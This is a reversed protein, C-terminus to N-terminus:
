VFVFTANIEVVPIAQQSCSSYMSRDFHMVFGKNAAMKNFVPDCFCTQIIFHTNIYWGKNPTMPTQIHKAM